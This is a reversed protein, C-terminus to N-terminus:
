NQRWYNQLSVNTVHWQCFIGKWAGFWYLSDFSTDSSFFTWLRIGNIFYYIQLVSEEGSMRKRTLKWKLFPRSDNLNEFMDCAFSTQRRCDNEISGFIFDGFSHWHAVILEIVSRFQAVIAAPEYRIATTICSFLSRGFQQSTVAMWPKWRFIKMGLQPNM